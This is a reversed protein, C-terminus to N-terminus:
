CLSRLALGPAQDVEAAAVAVAATAAAVATAAM